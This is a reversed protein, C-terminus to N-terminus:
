KRRAVLALVWPRDGTQDSSDAPPMSFKRTRGSISCSEMATSRSALPRPWRAAEIHAARQRVAPVVTSVKVGVATPLSRFSTM